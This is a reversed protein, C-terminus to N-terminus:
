INIGIDHTKNFVRVVQLVAPSLSSNIVFEIIFNIGIFTLFLVAYPNSEGASSELVPMFFVLTGIAFLGTNIIPVLISSLIVSLIFYKNKLLKFILGSILGAIGTKLLCLFVTAIPNFPMFLTLTSPATICIAGDIVGLFLGAIPGYIIAGVVIPILALNLNIFEGITIYNAVLQLVVVLASFCAIGTMKKIKTNM